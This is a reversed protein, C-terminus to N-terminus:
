GGTEKKTPWECEVMEMTHVDSCVHTRLLYRSRLVRLHWLSEFAQSNIEFTACPSLFFVSENQNKRDNGIEDNWIFAYYSQAALIAINTKLQKQQMQNEYM